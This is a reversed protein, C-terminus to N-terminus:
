NNNKINNMMSKVKFKRKTEDSVEAAILQFIMEMKQEMNAMRADMLSIKSEMTELKAKIIDNHFNDSNMSNSASPLTPPTSIRNNMPNFSNFANDTNPNLDSNPGKGQQSNDQSFPNSSPSNSDLNPLDGTPLNSATLLDNKPLGDGSESLSPLSYDDLKFGDDKKKFPNFM